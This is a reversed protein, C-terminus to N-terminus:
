GGVFVFLNIIYYYFCYYRYLSVGLLVSLYYIFGRLFYGWRCALPWSPHPLKYYRYSTLVQTKILVTTRCCDMRGRLRPLTLIYNNWVKMCHLCYHHVRHGSVSLCLRPPCWLMSMWQTPQHCNTMAQYHKPKGRSCERFYSRLDQRFQKQVNYYYHIILHAM